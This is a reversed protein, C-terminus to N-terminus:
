KLAAEVMKLYVAKIQRKTYEESGTVPYPLAAIAADLMADTCETLRRAIEEVSPGSEPVVIM